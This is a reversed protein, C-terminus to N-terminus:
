RDTAKASETRAPTEKVLKLRKRYVEAKTHQGKKEYYDALAQLAPQYDSARELARNLWTLALDENVRLFVTGVETLTAPDSVPGDTEQRLVEHVRKLIAEDHDCQKRIAQAEQSRGQSELCLALLRQAETDTANLDLTRRIWIEAEAPRPPTAQMYIKGLHICALGDDSLQAAAAELLRCAEETEGQLYRCQGLRARVDPRDPFRKSLLELHPLAALPDFRELYLEALRLRVPVSDPDRELAQKYASIAGNRNSMLELVWGRWRFPEPSDPEVEQWRNFCAFAPRYRLQQMYAWALTQLILPSEPSNSDVYVSLENVVRDVEGGQVRLLLFELQIAESAGHNLKLCRNLLAEAQPFDGHIRAARAALLNVPVSRPWLLLCIDLRRKAEEPRGEKVAKQAAQWQHAAYAYAVGTGALVSLALWLVMRSRKRVVNAVASLM